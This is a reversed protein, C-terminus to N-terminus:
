RDSIESLARELTEDLDNLIMYQNADCGNRQHAAQFLALIEPSRAVYYVRQVNYERFIQILQRMASTFGGPPLRFEPRCYFIVQVRHAVEQLMQKLQMQFVQADDWTWNDGSSIFIIRKHHRWEVTM